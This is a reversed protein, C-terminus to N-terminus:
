EIISLTPYAKEGSADQSRIYETIRATKVTGSNGQVEVLDGLSYHIGYKFQNDPVIEGDVAQVYPNAAIADKARSNLITVVADPDSGVQDTTIDDAFIMIARLDFGTYEADTRISVGPDTTLPPDGEAAKLGPAFSYANTKFAAISKLEKINSFSDMKPSFRVAPNVDQGSTRDLGKYVKFGLRFTTELFAFYPDEFMVRLKIGLENSVAIDKVADFVPGYPVAVEIPDGEMTFDAVTLGPIALDEPNPIGMTTDGPTLYPSEPSCMYYIINWMTFDASYGSIHWYKDEHNASARIFRNNLWQTLSIGSLKIIGDQIDRTEIIMTDESGELGIFSGEVLTNTIADSIEPVVLEISSDGYYRETWIVSLFNDIADKKHFYENLTYLEM